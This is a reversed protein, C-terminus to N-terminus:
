TEENLDCTKRVDGKDSSSGIENCGFSFFEGDPTQM